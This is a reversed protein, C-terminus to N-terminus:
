KKLAETLVVQVGKQNRIAKTNHGRVRKFVLVCGRHQHEAVFRQSLGHADYIEEKL